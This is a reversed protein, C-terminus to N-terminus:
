ARDTELERIATARGDRVGQQYAQEQTQGMRRYAEGLERVEHALHGWDFPTLAHGDRTAKALDAVSSALRDFGSPGTRPGQHAFRRSTFAM